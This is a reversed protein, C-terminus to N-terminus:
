LFCFHQKDYLQQLLEIIETTDCSFQCNFDSMLHHSIAQDPLWCLAQEVSLRSFYYDCHGIAAQAHIFHPLLDTNDGCYAAALTLVNVYLSPSSKLFQERQEPKNWHDYLFSMLVRYAMDQQQESGAVTLWASRKLQQIIYPQLFQLCHALEQQYADLKPFTKFDSSETPTAFRQLLSLKSARNVPNLFCDTLTERHPQNGSAYTPQSALNKEIDDFWSIFDVFASPTKPTYVNKQEESLLQQALYFEVERAARTVFPLLCTGQSLSQLLDLTASMAPEDTHQLVTLLTDINLPFIVARQKTLQILQQSLTNLHIDASRGLFADQLLLWYSTDLYITTPRTLKQAFCSPTLVSEIFASNPTTIHSDNNNLQSLSHHIISPQTAQKANYAVSPEQIQNQIDTTTKNSHIDAVPKLTLGTLRIKDAFNGM